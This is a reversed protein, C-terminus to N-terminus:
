PKGAPFPGNLWYAELWTHEAELALSRALFPGLLPGGVPCLNAWWRGRDDPEVHSARQISPIGLSTLDIAEAYLCHVTGGSDIRLQM